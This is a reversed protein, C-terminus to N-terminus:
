KEDGSLEQLAAKRDIMTELFMNTDADEETSISLIYFRRNGDYSSQSGYLAGMERQGINQRTVSVSKGIRVSLPQMYEQGNNMREALKKICSAIYKIQHSQVGNFYSDTFVNSLFGIYQNVLAIEQQTSTENIENQILELNEKASESLRKGLITLQTRHLPAEKKEEINEEESEVTGFSSVNEYLTSQINRLLLELNNGLKAFLRHSDRVFVPQNPDNEATLAILVAAIYDELFANIISLDKRYEAFETRRLILNDSVTSVELRQLVLLQGPTFLTNKQYYKSSARLIDLADAIEKSTKFPSIIEDKAKPVKVEEVPKSPTDLVLVASKTLDIKKTEGEPTESKKNNRFEDAAQVLSKSTLYNLERNQSLNKEKIQKQKALFQPVTLLEAPEGPMMVVLHSPNSQINVLMPGTIKEGLAFADSLIKITIASTLNPVEEPTSTQTFVSVHFYPKLPSDLVKALLANFESNKLYVVDSYLIGKDQTSGDLTMLGTTTGHEKLLEKAENIFNPRDFLREQPMRFTLMFYHSAPDDTPLASIPVTKMKSFYRAHSNLADKCTMKTSLTNQTTNQTDTAFAISTTLLLGTILYKM